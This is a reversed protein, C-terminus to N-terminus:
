GAIILLHSFLQVENLNIVGWKVEVRMGATGGLASILRPCMVARGAENSRVCVCVCGIVSARPQTLARLSGAPSKFFGGLAAIM